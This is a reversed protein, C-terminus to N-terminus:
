PCPSSMREEQSAIVRSEAMPRTQALRDSRLSSGEMM